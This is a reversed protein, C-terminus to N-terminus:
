HRRPISSATLPTNNYDISWQTNSAIDEDNPKQSSVKSPKRITSDSKKLLTSFQKIAGKVMVTCVTKKIPFFRTLM